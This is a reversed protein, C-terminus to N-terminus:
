AARSVRLEVRSSAESRMLLKFERREWTGFTELWGITAMGLLLAQRRCEEPDEVDGHRFPDGIEGFVWSRLFRLYRTRLPLHALLDETKRMKTAPVDILFRNRGDIVGHSRAAATFGAQLAEYFLPYADIFRGAGLMEFATAFHRKAVTSLLDANETATQLETLLQPNTLVPEILGILREDHRGRISGVLPLGLSRPLYGVVFLVPPHKKQSGHFEAWNEEFILFSTEIGRGIGRSIETGFRASQERFSKYGPSSLLNQLARQLPTQLSEIMEQYRRAYQQAIPQITGALKRQVQALGDAIPGAIAETIADQNEYILDLLPSSPRVLDGQAEELAKVAPSSLLEQLSRQNRDRISAVQGFVGDLQGSNGFRPIELREHHQSAIEAAQRCLRTAEGLQPRVVRMLEAQREAMQGGFSPFGSDVWKPISVSLRRAWEVVRQQFRRHEELLVAFLREDGTLMTGALRRYTPHVGAAEAIALRLSARVSGSLREAEAVTLEPSNLMRAILVSVFRRYDVRLPQEFYVEALEASVGLSLVEVRVPGFGRIERSVAGGEAADIDLEARKSM